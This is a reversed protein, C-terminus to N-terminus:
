FAEAYISPEKFTHWDAATWGVRRNGCACRRSVGDWGDCGECFDDGSFSFPGGSNLRRAVEESFAIEEAQGVADELTFDTGLVKGREQLWIVAEQQYKIAAAERERKQEDQEKKKQEDAIRRDEDEFKRKVWYESNCQENLRGLLADVTTDSKKKRWYPAPAVAEAKKRWALFEDRLLKARDAIVKAEELKAERESM